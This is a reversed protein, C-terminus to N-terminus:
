EYKNFHNNFFEVHSGNYSKFEEWVSNFEKDEIYKEIMGYPLGDINLRWTAM